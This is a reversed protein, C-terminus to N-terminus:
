MSEIQKSLEKILSGVFEATKKGSETPNGMTNPTVSALLGQQIANQVLEIAKITAGDKDYLAM